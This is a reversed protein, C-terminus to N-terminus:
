KAKEKLFLGNLGHQINKKFLTISLSKLYQIIQLCANLHLWQHFDWPLGGEGLGQSLTLLCQHGKDRGPAPVQCIRNKNSRVGGGFPFHPFNSSHGPGYNSYNFYKSNPGSIKITKISNRHQRQKTYGTVTNSVTLHMAQRSNIGSSSFAASARARSLDISTAWHWQRTKTSIRPVGLQFDMPFRYCQLLELLQQWKLNRGKLYQLLTSSITSDWMRATLCNFHAQWTRHRLPFWILASKCRKAYAVPLSELTQLLVAIKPSDLASILLMFSHKQLKGVRFM